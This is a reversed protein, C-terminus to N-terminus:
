DQLLIVPKNLGVLFGFEFPVNPRLGDLIVIGLVSNSTLDQLKALYDETSRIEQGLLKPAFGRDRLTAMVRDRVTYIYDVHTQESYVIFCQLVGETDSTPRESKGKPEHDILEEDQQLTGRRFEDSEPSM